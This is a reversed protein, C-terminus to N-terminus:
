ALLTSGVKRRRTQSQLEIAIPLTFPRVIRPTLYIWALTLNNTDGALVRAIRFDFNYWVLGSCLRIRLWGAGLLGDQGATWGFTLPTILLAIVSYPWVSPLHSLALRLWDDALSQLNSNVIWACNGESENHQVHHIICVYVYYEPIHQASVPLYMKCQVSGVRLADWNAVLFFKM